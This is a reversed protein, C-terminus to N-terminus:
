CLCVAQLWGGEEDACVCLKCGAERRMLVFLCGAQRWGGEEDACVCLRGGAERRMLVFM